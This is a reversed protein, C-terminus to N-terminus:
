RPPDATAAAGPHAESGQLGGLEAVTFGTTRGATAARVAAVDTPRITDTRGASARLHTLLAAVTSDDMAAGNGYPAMALAGAARAPAFGAVVGHLTIAILPRPDGAIWASTELPAASPTPEAVTGHCVTCRDAVLRAAAAAPTDPPPAACGFLLVLVAAPRAPM